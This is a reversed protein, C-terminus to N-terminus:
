PKPKPERRRRSRAAIREATELFFATQAETVAIEAQLLEDLLYEYRALTIPGPKEPAELSLGPGVGLRRRVKDRRRRARQWPLEYPTVYVLQSCQRCLFYRRSLYLRVVRRGCCPAAVAAADVVADNDGANGDNDDDADNNDGDSSTGDTTGVGQLGPCVFLTYGGGFHNSFHALSVTESIEDDGGSGSEVEGSDAATAVVSDSVSRPDWSLHLRDAEARLHISVKAKGDGGGSGGEIRWRGSWGPRLCGNARLEHANLVLRCSDITPRNVQVRPM